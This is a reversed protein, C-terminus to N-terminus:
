ESPTPTGAKGHPRKREHHPVLEALEPHDAILRARLAKREESSMAQVDAISGPTAVEVREKPKGYVREFLWAGARWDGERAAKVAAGVIDRAHRELELAIWDQATRARVEAKTRRREAAKAQNTVPDAAIGLGSHGACKTGNGIANARCPEGNKKAAECQAM